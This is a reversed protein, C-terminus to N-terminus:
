RRSRWAAASTCRPCTRAPSLETAKGRITLKGDVFLMGQVIVNGGLTLDGTCRWIREPQYMDAAVTGPGINNTFYDLNSYDITVPPRVLSLEGAAKHHGTIAGTLGASFVDGDITGLNVVADACCLDGHVAHNPRLTLAGDTWLAISPDLRLEAQLGSVALRDANALRYAECTIAYTCRDNTDSDDRVVNVDYYDNTNPVLQQHEAGRWYEATIDQPCLLLGRAHELGSDALQDMQARLQMNQGCGLEVDCRTIFGLSIVAVAMVMFLVMLLAVGENHDRRTTSIDRETTM